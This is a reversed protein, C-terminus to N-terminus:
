KSLKMWLYLFLNKGDIKKVEMWHLTEYLARSFFQAPVKEIHEEASRYKRGEWVYVYVQFYYVLQSFAMVFGHMGDKYGEDKFYRSIFESLGKQLAHMLTLDPLNKAEAKAYRYSKELYQDYTQYNHHELALSEVAPVLHERGKIEPQTHIHTDWKVFGKKFFRVQYDPWWRSHQMWHGLIINKRPITFYDCDSMHTKIYAQLDKTLIEDPDIYLVWTGHSEDIIKQRFLEIYSPTPYTLIRVNKIAKIQKLMDQSMGIDAVVIEDAFDRLSQLTKLPTEREDKIAVVASIKM